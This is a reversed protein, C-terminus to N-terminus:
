AVKAAGNRGACVFSEAAMIRINQMKRAILRIKRM